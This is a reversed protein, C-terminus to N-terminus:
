QFNTGILNRYRITANQIERIDTGTIDRTSDYAQIFCSQYTRTKTQNTSPNLVTEQIDFPTNQDSLAVIVTQADTGFVKLLEQTYLAIARVRIERTRVVGPILEVPVDPPNSGIVFSDTVDRSESPSMSLITGIQHQQSNSATVFIKYSTVLQTVTLPQAM